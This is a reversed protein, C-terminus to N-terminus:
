CDETELWVASEGNWGLVFTGQGEPPKITITDHSDITPTIDIVAEANQGVKLRVARFNRDLKKASIQHESALVDDQFKHLEAM